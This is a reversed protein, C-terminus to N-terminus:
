RIHTKGTFGAIGEVLGPVFSYLHEEFISGHLVDGSDIIGQNLFIKRGGNFFKVNAHESSQTAQCAIQNLRALRL